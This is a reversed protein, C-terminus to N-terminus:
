FLMEKKELWKEVREYEAQYKREMDKQYKQFEISNRINDFLPDHKLDTLRWLECYKAESHKLYTLATSTDGKFAKIRALDYYAQLVGKNRPDSRIIRESSLTIQNFMHEAKKSGTRWCAYAFQPSIYNLKEYYALSEKFMGDNYLDNALRETVEYYDNRIILARRCYEISKKYNGQDRELGGFGSLYFASDGDIEFAKTFCIKANDLLGTRIFGGGIMRYITATEKGNQNIQLAKYLNDLFTLHDEFENLIAKGYYAMWDNPNVELAKNFEKAANVSSGTAAYFNGKVFHAESLQDNYSLARDALILVSDLYNQREHESYSFKYNAFYVEALGSYANAFAPDFKLAKRYYKGARESASYDDVEIWFEPLEDRGRQYFDWATLNSTPIKEILQKEEPSITTNLESAISQAIESQIDFIDNMEDIEQEYANAWLQNEKGSNVLQVRLRIHKGYKQGSGQVIYNVGLKKGIEPITPMSSGRFQETSTRSIVKKFSKIRQLNRLIEDQIGNIFYETSDSPSDNIFPLVAISKEIQGSSKILKSKFLFIAVILVLIILVLPITKRDKIKRQVPNISVEKNTSILNHKDYKTLAAVIEKIANAVKNIQDRYYTKNLNKDPNDTLTLPRNVGDSKYIFEISRLATGLENEIQSKDESDLSHIQVPLIRSTINGGVLKIDRGFQDELTMKNFACFEYQWAFSKSDCYTQSIIPILILSKLKGALSKDVNYTELLGDESNTDFYVSVPEKITAKLEKELNRVFDTVWGDLNDNQRYSIFIDYEYVPFISAM